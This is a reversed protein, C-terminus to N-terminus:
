ATAKDKGMLGNVMMSKTEKEIFMFEKAMRKIVEGIEVIFIEMKTITCEMVM